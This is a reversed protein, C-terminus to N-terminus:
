EGLLTHFVAVTDPVCQIDLATPLIKDNDTDDQGEPRPSNFGVAFYGTKDTLVYDVLHGMAGGRWKEVVYTGPGPPTPKGPTPNVANAWLYDDASYTYPNKGTSRCVFIAIRWPGGIRTPTAFLRAVYNGADWTGVGDYTRAKTYLFVSPRYVVTSNLDLFEETRGRLGNYIANQGARTQAMVSRACLAAMTLDRSRRSQDVAVPFISAVMTLGIGLIGAAMLMETLTFGARRKRGSAM